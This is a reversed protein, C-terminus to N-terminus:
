LTLEKREQAEVVQEMEGVALHLHTVVEFVKDRHQVAVQKLHVIQGVVLVVALVVLEVMVASVMLFVEVAM